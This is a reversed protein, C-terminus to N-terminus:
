CSASRGSAAMPSRCRSRRTSTSTAAIWVALLLAVLPTPLLVLGVAAVVVFLAISSLSNALFAPRLLHALEDTARIRLLYSGMGLDLVATLFLGAGLVSSVTGYLDPATLRALLLVAVAQAVSAVARSVFLVVVDRKMEGDPAAQEHRPDGV